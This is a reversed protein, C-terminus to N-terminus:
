YNVTLTLTGITQVGRSATKGVTLRGGVEVPLEGSAPFSGTSSGISTYTVGSTVRLGDSAADQTSVALQYALDPEGRLVFQGTHHDQVPLDEGTGRVRSLAGDAGLKWVTEEDPNQTITGFHLSRQGLVQVPTIVHIRADLSADSAQAATAVLMLAALNLSLLTRCMPSSWTASLLFAADLPGSTLSEGLEFGTAM